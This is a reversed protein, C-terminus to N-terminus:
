RKTGTKNSFKSASTEKNPLKHSTGVPNRTKALFNAAQIKEKFNSQSTVQLLIYLSPM